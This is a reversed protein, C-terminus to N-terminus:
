PVVALGASDVASLVPFGSPDDPDGPTGTGDNPDDDGPASYMPVTAKLVLDMALITLNKADTSISSALVDPSEIQVPWDAAFGAFTWRSWFRRHVPSDLFLQFQAALSRATPEDHAFIAVQVRLDAAYSRCGFARNKPDAPFQVYEMESLNRTFDRGTPTSDKAMAVLIVPLRAPGDTPADDTDNRRWSELMDEAYDVMRAPAWAIAKPLPRAMFERLPATTPALGAFYGALLEGFAIKVPQFM